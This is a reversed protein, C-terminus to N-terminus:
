RWNRSEDTEKVSSFLKSYDPSFGNNNNIEEMFYNGRLKDTAETNIKVNMVEAKKLDDWLISYEFESVEPFFDRIQKAHVAISKFIDQKIPFSGVEPVFSLYLKLGNDTSIMDIKESCRFANKTFYEIKEKIFDNRLSSSMNEKQTTMTTCGTLLMSFITIVCLNMSLRKRNM